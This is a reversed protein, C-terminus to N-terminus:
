PRLWVCQWRPAGFLLQWEGGVSAMKLFVLRNRPREGFTGLSLIRLVCQPFLSSEGLTVLDGGIGGWGDEGAKGM